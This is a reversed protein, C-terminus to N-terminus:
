KVGTSLRERVREGDTRRMAFQRHQQQEEEDSPACSCPVDVADRRYAGRRAAM